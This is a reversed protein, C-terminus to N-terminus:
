GGFLRRRVRSLVGGKQAEPHLVKRWALEQGVAAEVGSRTEADVTIAVKTGTHWLEREAVAAEYVQQTIALSALDAARGSNAARMAATWADRAVVYREEAEAASRAPNPRQSLTAKPAAELRAAVEKTAPPTRPTRPAAPKATGDEAATTRRTM